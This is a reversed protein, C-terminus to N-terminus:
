DVGDLETEKLDTKNSDERRCGHRGLTTKGVPQGVLAGYINWKKGVLTV